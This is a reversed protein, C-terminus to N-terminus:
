KSGVGPEVTLTPVADSLSTLTVTRGLYSSDRGELQVSSLTVEPGKEGNALQLQADFVFSRAGVTCAADTLRIAEAGEFYFVSGVSCGPLQEIRAMLRAAHAAPTAGAEFEVGEVLHGLLMVEAALHQSQATVDLALDRLYARQNENLETPICAVLSLCAALASTRQFMLKRMALAEALA